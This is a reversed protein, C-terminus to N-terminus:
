KGKSQKIKKLYEIYELLEGIREEYEKIVNSLREIRSEYTNMVNQMQEVNLKQKQELTSEMAREGFFRGIIMGLWGVIVTLIIGMNSVKEPSYWYYVFSGILLGILIVMIMIQILKTYGGRNDNNCIDRIQNWFWEFKSWLWELKSPALLLLFALLLIIILLCLQSISLYDLFM